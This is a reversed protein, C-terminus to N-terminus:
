SVKFLSEGGVNNYLAKKHSIVGFNSTSLFIVGTEPKVKWLSKVSLYLPNKKKSLLQVKSIVSKNDIYKLYLFLSTIKNNSYVRYSSLFGESVLVELFFECKPFYSCKLCLVNMAIGKELESVFKSIDKYM